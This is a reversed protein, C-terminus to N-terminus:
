LTEVETRLRIKARHCGVGVKVVSKVHDHQGLLVSYKRDKIQQLGQVAATSIKKPDDTVKYEM